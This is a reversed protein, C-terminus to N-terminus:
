CLQTDMVRTVSVLQSHPVFNLHPTVPKLDDNAAVGILQRRVTQRCVLLLFHIPSPEKGLIGLIGRIGLIGVPSPERGLIGLIGVDSPCM